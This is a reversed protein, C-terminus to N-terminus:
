PIQVEGAIGGGEYDVSVPASLRFITEVHNISEASNVLEEYIGLVASQRLQSGEQQRLHGLAASPRRQGHSMGTALCFTHCQMLRRLLLEAVCCSACMMM